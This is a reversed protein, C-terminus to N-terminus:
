PAKRKWTSVLDLWRMFTGPPQEEALDQDLRDLAAADLLHYRLILPRLSCLADRVISFGTSAAVIAGSAECGDPIGIGADVFLRPMQTGIENDRGLQAFGRAVLHLARDIAENRPIGRASSIDYDMILLVGAPKVWSWLRQLVQVPQPTHFLVLRAFVLDFPAAAICGIQTVDGAIFRCVDAGEAHLEALMREGQSADVDLGTVRGTPGVRQALLRMVDGTGCGVDLVSAGPALAVDSLARLTAPELVQSQRSLRRYERHSRTFAYEEQPAQPQGHAKADTSAPESM